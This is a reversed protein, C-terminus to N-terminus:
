EFWVEKQIFQSIRLNAQHLDMSKLDFMQGGDDKM